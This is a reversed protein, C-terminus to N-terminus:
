PITVRLASVSGSRITLSRLIEPGTARSAQHWPVAMEESRLFHRPRASIAAIIAEIEDVRSRLFELRALAPPRMGAQRAIGKRFASLSFLAFTDELIEAHQTAIIPSSIRGPRISGQLWEPQRQQNARETETRQL